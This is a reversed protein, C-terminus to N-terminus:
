RCTYPDGRKYIKMSKLIVHLSQFDIRNPNLLFAYIVLPVSLIRYGVFSTRERLSAPSSTRKRLPTPNYRGPFDGCGCWASPVCSIIPLRHCHVHGVKIAKMVENKFMLLSYTRWIDTCTAMRQQNKNGKHATTSFYGSSKRRERAENMVGVAFCKSCHRKRLFQLFFSAM